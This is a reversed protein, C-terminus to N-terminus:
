GIAQIGYDYGLLAIDLTERVTMPFPSLATNMITSPPNSGPHRMQWMHWLRDIMSHHSWFIPDYAATAVQAMAGGVWVHVDGHVNELLTSFEAFTSIALISEITARRPLEDPADPDRQTRGQATLAGPLMQRVTQVLQRPWEVTAALLPNAVGDAQVAVYAPPLGETHSVNSTWDWWPLGIDDANDITANRAADQLFLEFFYLYARHWPLFLLLGHPCYSPLPLGHLGAYYHYGRDDPIAQMAAFAARLQALQDNSLGRISRRIAM